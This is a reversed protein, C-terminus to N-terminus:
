MMLVRYSYIIPLLYYIIINYYYNILSKLNQKEHKELEVYIANITESDIM